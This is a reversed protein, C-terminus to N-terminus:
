LPMLIVMMNPSANPVTRVRIMTGTKYAINKLILFAYIDPSNATEPHSGTLVITIEITLNSVILLFHVDDSTKSIMQIM